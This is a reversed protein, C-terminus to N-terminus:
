LKRPTIRLGAGFRWGDIAPINENTWLRYMPFWVRFDFGLLFHESLPFDMGTGFVPLFWRGNGWFYKSIEKTQMKADTEIKGSFDAPHNLGFALTVIRIDIAPGGYVRAAIGNSGIPFHGTVQAATLLGIVFASRNEPSCAMPYGYKANFEYNNFYVDETVEIRLFDHVQWSASFGVGPIIAAPPGEPVNDSAFLYLGGLGAWQFNDGYVFNVPILTLLFVLLAATYKPLKLFM